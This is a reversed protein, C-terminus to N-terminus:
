GGGGREGVVLLLRGRGFVEWWTRQWEWTLFVTDTEGARLLEEWQERGFSPDDFGSIIHTQVATGVM